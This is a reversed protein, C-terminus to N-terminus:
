VWPPTQKWTKFRTPTIHKYEASHIVLSKRNSSLCAKSGVLGQQYSNINHLHWVDLFRWSAEWGMGCDLVAMSVGLLRGLLMSRSVKWGCGRDSVVLVRCGWHCGAWCRGAVDTILCWWHCGLHCGGGVVFGSIGGDRLELSKKGRTCPCIICRPSLLGLKVQWKEGKRPEIVWSMAFLRLPKKSPNALQLQAILQSTPNEVGKPGGSVNCSGLSRGRRHLQYHANSPCARFFRAVRDRRHKPPNPLVLTPCPLNHISRHWRQHRLMRPEAFATAVPSIRGSSM